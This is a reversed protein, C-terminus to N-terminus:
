SAIGATACVFPITDCWTGSEVDPADHNVIHMGKVLEDGLM